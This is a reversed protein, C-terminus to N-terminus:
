VGNRKSRRDLESFGRPPDGCIAATLDRRAAADRRAERAALQDSSVHLGPLQDGDTVCQKQSSVYDFKGQTSGTRRGLACDIKAYSDGNARMRKARMWEHPTWPKGGTM